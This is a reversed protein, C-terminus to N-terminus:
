SSHEIWQLSIWRFILNRYTAYLSLELDYLTMLRQLFQYAMYLKRVTILLLQSQIKGRKFTLGVYLIFMAIKGL